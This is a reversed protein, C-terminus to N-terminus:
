TIDVTRTMQCCLLWCFLLIATAAAAASVSLYGCFSLACVSLRELCENRILPIFSKKELQSSGGCEVTEGNMESVFSIIVSGSLFRNLVVGDLNVLNLMCPCMGPVLSLGGVDAMVDLSQM